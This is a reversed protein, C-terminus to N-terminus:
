QRQGHRLGAVENAVQSFQVQWAIEGSRDLSGKADADLFGDGVRELLNAGVREYKINAARVVQRALNVLLYEPVFEAQDNLGRGIAGVGARNKRRVADPADAKGGILRQQRGRWLAKLAVAQQALIERKRRAKQEEFQCTELFGQRPDLTIM